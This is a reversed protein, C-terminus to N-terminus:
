CEVIDVNMFIRIPYNYLMSACGISIIGNYSDVIKDNEFFGENNYVFGIKRDNKVKETIDNDFRDLAKLNHFVTKYTKDREVRICAFQDYNSFQVVNDYGPENYVVNKTDYKYAGEQIDIMECTLKM